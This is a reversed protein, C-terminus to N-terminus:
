LNDGLKCGIKYALYFNSIQDFNQSCSRTIHTKRKHDLIWDGFGALFMTFELYIFIFSFIIILIKM